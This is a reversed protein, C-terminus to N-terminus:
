IILWYVSKFFQTVIWPISHEILRITIYGVIIKYVYECLQIILM